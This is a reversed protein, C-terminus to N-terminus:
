KWTLSTELSCRYGDALYASHRLDYLLRWRFPAAVRANRCVSCGKRAIPAGLKAAGIRRLTIRGDGFHKMADGSFGGNNMQHQRLEHLRSCPEDREFLFFRAPIRGPWRDVRMATRVLQSRCTAFGGM